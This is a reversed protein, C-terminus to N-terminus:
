KAYVSKFFYGQLNGFEPDILLAEPSESSFFRRTRQVFWSKVRGVRVWPQASMVDRRWVGGLTLLLVLRMWSRVYRLHWLLLKILLTKRNTPSYSIFPVSLFIRPNWSLGYVQAHITSIWWHINSNKEKDIMEENIRNKREEEEDEDGGEVDEDIKQIREIENKKRAMREFEWPSMLGERGKGKM